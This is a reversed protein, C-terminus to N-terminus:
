SVNLQESLSAFFDEVDREMDSPEGEYRELVFQIAEQLNQTQQIHRLIALGVPNVTYSQGSTPDFIFGSESIALRHIAQILESQNHSM